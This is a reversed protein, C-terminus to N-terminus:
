LYKNGEDKETDMEPILSFFNLHTIPIKVSIARSGFFDSLRRMLLNDLISSENQKELDVPIIKAAREEIKFHDYRTLSIFDPIISIENKSRYANDLAILSREKVCNVVNLSSYKQQCLNVIKVLMDILTMSSHAVLVCSFCLTITFIRSM